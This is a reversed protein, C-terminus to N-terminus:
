IRAWVQKGGATVTWGWSRSLSAVLFLGRGSEDAAGAAAARQLPLLSAGDEVTVLVDDRDIATTYQVPPLGHQVANGALESLVLVAADTRDEGVCGSSCVLRVQTRATCLDSANKLPITM